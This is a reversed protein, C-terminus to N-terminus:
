PVLRPASARASLSLEGFARLSAGRGPKSRREMRRWPYRLCLRPTEVNRAGDLCRGECAGLLGDGLPRHSRLEGDFLEAGVATAEEIGIRCM